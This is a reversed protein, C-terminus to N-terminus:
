TQNRTGAGRSVNFKDHGLTCAVHRIVHQSSPIPSQLGSSRTTRALVGLKASPYLLHARPHACLTKLVRLPGIRRFIHNAQLSRQRDVISPGQQGLLQVLHQPLMLSGASARVSEARQVGHLHGLHCLIQGRHVDTSPLAARSGRRRVLGARVNRVVRVVGHRVLNILQKPGLQEVVALLVLLASAHSRLFARLGGNHVVQVGDNSIRVRSVAAQSGGHLQGLHENLVASAADVDLILFGSRLLTAVHTTLHQHSTALVNLTQNRAPQLRVDQVGRQNQNRTSISLCGSQQIRVNVRNVVRVDLSGSHSTHLRKAFGGHLSSRIRPLLAGPAHSERVLHCLDHLALTSVIRLDLPPQLRGHLHRQILHSRGRLLSTGTVNEEAPLSGPSHFPVVANLSRSIIADLTRNSEGRVRIGDPHLGGLRDSRLRLLKGPLHLLRNGVLHQRVVQARREVPVRRAHSVLLHLGKHPVQGLESIHPLEDSQSSEVAVSQANVQERPLVLGSTRSRVHLQNLTLLPLVLHLCQRM